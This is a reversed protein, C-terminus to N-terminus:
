AAETAAIGAPRLTRGLIARTGALVPTEVRTLARRPRREPIDGRQRRRAISDLDKARVCLFALVGVRMTVPEERVDVSAPGHDVSM